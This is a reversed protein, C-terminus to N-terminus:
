NMYRFYTQLFESLNFAFQYLLHSFVSICQYVTYNCCCSAKLVSFTHGFESTIKFKYKLLFDSQEHNLLSTFSM